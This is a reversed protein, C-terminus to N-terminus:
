AGELVEAALQMRSIIDVDFPCRDMCDGCEICESPRADRRTPEEVPEQIRTPYYLTERDEASKAVAPRLARDLERMTAGIDIGVECPLCHNCYVCNGALDQQVDALVPRFDKEEDSASNYALTADLEELDKVGPVACTMGPQSLVYHLCQVASVQSRERQQFLNGGAYPKMAVLGVDNQACAQYVEKRGPAWNWALSVPFMWVGIHGSRIAELAARNRHGSMALFRAKGERQFRRALDM